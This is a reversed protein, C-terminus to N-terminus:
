NTILLTLIVLNRLYRGKMQFYLLHFILLEQDLPVKEELGKVFEPREPRPGIISMDGKLINYFQPVEDLRTKRLFKGFKTIRTDNKRTSSVGSKDADIEMSRLKVMKFAIENKGVRSAVYFPYKKDQMWVLFVVILLIPSIVILGLLAIIFDFLRKIM